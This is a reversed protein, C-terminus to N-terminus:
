DLLKEWKLINKNSFKKVREIVSSKNEQYFNSDTMLDNIVKVWVEITEKESLSTIQPLLIGYNFINHDEAKLIERPGYPCDAAVVPVGCAMAELLAMPFGEYLSPFGYFSSKALIPFPNSMYGLFLIDCDDNMQLGEKYNFTKLGLSRSYNVLTDLLPGDGIIITNLKSRLDKHNTIDILLKQNKEFAVRGHTVLVPKKFISLLEPSIEVQSLKKIRNYDVGNTIVSIRHKAVKFTGSLEDGIGQSVPILLDARRYFFPILLKKRFFGELGKIAQDYIKSGHICFFIKENRASLINIYDAGELHSISIAVNLKRKLKRLRFVRLFFFYTKTFLNSGGPVDLSYLQNQTYYATKNNLNFACEIVEFKHSLGAALDQFVRQAGGFDLGPIIMLIKKKAM